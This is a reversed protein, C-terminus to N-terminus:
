LLKAACHFIYEKQMALVFLHSVNDIMKRQCDGGFDGNKIGGAHQQAAAHDIHRAKRQLIQKTRYASMDARRIGALRKLKSVGGAVIHGTDYACGNICRVHLGLWLCIHLTPLVFNRKVSM